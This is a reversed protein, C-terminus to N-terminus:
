KEELIKVVWLILYLLIGGGVFFTLIVFAIRIISVDLNLKKAIWSCVGLLIKSKKAM